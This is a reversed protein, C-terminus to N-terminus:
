GRTHMLQKLSILVDELQLLLNLNNDETQLIKGSRQYLNLLGQLKNQMVLTLEQDTSAQILKQLKIKLLMRITENELTKLAKVTSAVESQGNIFPDLLQDFKDVQVKFDQRFLELARQPDAHSLALHDEVQDVAMFQELWQRSVEPAPNEITWQQCRSRLTIPLKGPTHTLLIITSDSSPEELTKLLSNASAQNLKEAPYILAIKGGERNHTLSLQHILRRIQNIKIVKNLKHTKEDHILTTFTFDPYNNAIMLQCSQCEGCPLAQQHNQCLLALALYWGFEQSDVATKLTILIAHPLKQQSKLQVLQSVVTKQWDLASPTIHVQSPREKDM